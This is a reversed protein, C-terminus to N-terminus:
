SSAAGAEAVRVEANAVLFDIVKNSLVEEAVRDMADHKELEKAMKDPTMGYRAAMANTRARLEAQTVTVKEAEAIRQLIFTGKLKQRAAQAAAEVIEKESEKIAEDSLGRSQERQVIDALIRRTEGAVYNQPLECEVKSVLFGMIQERKKSEIEEKKQRELEGKALERVEALTKGEVVTSAFTDNLEPLKKTKVGTITVTYHIKQGALEPVPFDGPIALDFERTESPFAGLLAESFGPLLQEPAMRIWFGTNSTLVKGAGKPYVDSVPKGDITGDYDIVAYDEPELGRGDIDDFTAAQNRLREVSDDVEAETVDASPVIVPIKRYEPLEFDPATVLTATFHLSQDPSFEVEEVNQVQLVRLHKETIAARTSESLLKRELEERIEKQFKREVVALPAKGPRYGPLRAHAAYDRTINQRAANVADPPLDVKLTALCNPLPEVQVNM